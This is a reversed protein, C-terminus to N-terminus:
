FICKRLGSTCNYKVAPSCWNDLHELMPELPIEPGWCSYIWGSGNFDAQSNLNTLKRETLWHKETSQMKVQQYNMCWWSCPTHFIMWWRYLNYLCIDICCIFILTIKKKIQSVKLFSFLARCHFTLLMHRVCAHEFGTFCHHLITSSLLERKLVQKAFLARLM